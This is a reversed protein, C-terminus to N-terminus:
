EFVIVGLAELQQIVDLAESGPMACVDLIEELTQMGDVVGLLFGGRHDIPLAAIEAPTKVVRPVSQRRSLSLAGATTPKTPVTVAQLRSQSQRILHARASSPPPEDDDGAPPVSPAPVDIRFSFSPDVFDAGVTAVAAAPGPELGSLSVDIEIEDGFEVVISADPHDASSRETIQAPPAISSAVMLAGVADGRAYLERMAAVDDRTAVGSKSPVSPPPVSDGRAAALLDEEVAGFRTIPGEAQPPPSSRTFHSLADGKVVRTEQDHVSAPPVTGAARAPTATRESSTPPVTAEEPIEWDLEGFGPSAAAGDDELELDVQGFGRKPKSEAM